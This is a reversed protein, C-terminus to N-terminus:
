WGGVSFQSCEAILLFVIEHNTALLTMKTITKTYLFHNLLTTLSEFGLTKGPQLGKVESRM